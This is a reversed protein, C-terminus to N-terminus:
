KLRQKLSKKYENCVKWVASYPIKSSEAFQRPNKCGEIVDIKAIDDNSLNFVRAKYRTCMEQSDCDKKIISILKNELEDLEYNYGSDVIQLNLSDISLNHEFFVSTNHEGCYRVQNNRSWLYTATGYLYVELRNENYAKNFRDDKCELISLILEQYLDDSLHQKSKGVIKKCIGIYRKDKVITDIIHKQTM